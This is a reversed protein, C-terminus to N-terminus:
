RFKETFVAFQEMEFPEYRMSNKAYANDFDEPAYAQELNNKLYRRLVASNQASLTEQRVACVTGDGTILVVAARYAGTEELSRIVEEDAEKISFPIDSTELCDFVSILFLDLIGKSVYAVTFEAKKARRIEERTWIDDKICFYWTNDAYDLWIGNECADTKKGKEYKM